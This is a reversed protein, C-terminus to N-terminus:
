NSNNKIRDGKVIEKSSADRIGGLYQRHKIERHPQIKKKFTSKRANM